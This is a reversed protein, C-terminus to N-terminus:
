FDPRAVAVRAERVAEVLAARAGAGGLVLGLVRQPMAHGVPVREGCRQWIRRRMQACNWRSRVDLSEGVARSLALAVGRRRAWPM